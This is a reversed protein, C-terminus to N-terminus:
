SAEYVQQRITLRELVDRDLAPMGGPQLLMAGAEVAVPDRFLSVAPKLFGNFEGANRFTKEARCCTEPDGFINQATKM